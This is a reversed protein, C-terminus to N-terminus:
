DPIKQGIRKVTVATQGPKPRPEPAPPNHCSIRAALARGEESLDGQLIYSYRVEAALITCYMCEVIFVCIYQSPFM